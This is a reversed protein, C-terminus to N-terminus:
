ACSGESMWFHMTLSQSQRNAVFSRGFVDGKMAAAAKSGALRFCIRLTMKMDSKSSRTQVGDPRGSDMYALEDVWIDKM